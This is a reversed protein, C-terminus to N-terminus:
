IAGQKKSFVFFIFYILLGDTKRTLNLWAQCAIELLCFLLDVTVFPSVPFPLSTKLSTLKPAPVDSFDQL